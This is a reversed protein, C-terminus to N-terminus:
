SVFVVTFAGTCAEWETSSSTIAELAKRLHASESELRAVEVRVVRARAILDELQEALHDAFRQQSNM